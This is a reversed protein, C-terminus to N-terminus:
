VGDRIREFLATTEDSPDAELERKLAEKCLHYQRLALHRHGQREYCRMLHRHAEEHCSDIAIMQHSVNISTEYDAQEFHYKCLVDLMHLYTNQLNQRQVMIWDEYAIESLLDGRYHTTAIQYADIAQDIQGEVELLKGQEAQEVFKEYDIWLVMDPNLFYSDDEFLIHSFDPDRDQLTRRLAYITVNLNNRASDTDSDPWFTDMLVEKSVRQKRNMLLYKFILRAKRNGWEGVPQDNIYVEFSGMVYVTLRTQAVIEVIEQKDVTELAMVSTLNSLSLQPVLQTILRSSKVSRLLQPTDKPRKHRTPNAELELSDSELRSIEIPRASGTRAPSLTELIFTLAEKRQQARSIDQEHFVIKDHMNSCAACVEGIAVLMKVFANRNTSFETHIMQLIDVIEEYNESALLAQIHEKSHTPAPNNHLEISNSIM